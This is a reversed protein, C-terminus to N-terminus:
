KIVTVSVVMVEKYLYKYSVYIFIYLSLYISKVCLISTNRVILTFISKNRHKILRWVKQPLSHITRCMRLRPVLYLVTTAKVDLFSSRVPCSDLQASLGYLLGTWRPARPRWPARSM